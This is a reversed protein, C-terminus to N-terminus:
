CIRVTTFLNALNDRWAAPNEGDRWGRAKAYSMVAEIRMRVRHATENKVHWIPQLAALM